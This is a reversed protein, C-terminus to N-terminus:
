VSGQLCQLETNKLVVPLVKTGDRWRRGAGPWLRETGRLLHHCNCRWFLPDMKKERVKSGWCWVDQFVHCKLITILNRYSRELSTLQRILSAYYSFHFWLLSQQPVRLVTGGFITDKHSMCRLCNSKISNPTLM